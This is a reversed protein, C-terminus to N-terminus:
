SKKPGAQWEALDAKKGRITREGVKLRRGHTVAAAVAQGDRDLRVMSLLADSEINPNAAEAPISNEGSNDAPAFTLCQSGTHRWIFLDRLGDAREVSIALGAQQGESDTLPQSSVRCQSESGTAYPLAITAGHMPLPRKLRAIACTAPKVEMDIALFGQVPEERATVLDLEAQQWDGRFVLELNAHSLRNTRVIAAESDTRVHMPTFHWFAEVTRAKAKGAFANRDIVSDLVLWYDPRVFVLSRTHVMGELPGTEENGYVDDYSGQAFDMLKGASFLNRGRSSSCYRKYDGSHRRWQGRGDIDITNHSRSQHFFDVVPDHQYSSIGPDILFPTKYAYLDVHLKDEHQHAAGMEAIDFFAWRDDAEWGSRMVVHGADAYHITGVNRPPRGEAGATGAWLWDPRKYMRGVEVLKGSGRQLACGADNPVAYTGDPRTIGLVYDFMGDLRRIYEPSFSRGAHEARVRALHFLDACMMHYGPSLEFQAGDAFVQARLERELREMATDLWHTARSFEPYCAACTLIANSESVFWNCHGWYRLLHEAHAHMMKSIDILTRDRIEDSKQALHLIHPWAWGIRCSTSLTEWAPDLGGNHGVPEPNQDMWSAMLRDVERAYQRKGSDIAAEALVALWGHRNFAHNWELYGIPNCHWDIKRPLQQEMILHRCIEDPTHQRYHSNVKPKGSLPPLKKRRLYKAYAAIAAATNGSRVQRAVPKLGPRDLDLAALLEEDSMRPGGPQRVNCLEVDGLVVQGQDLRSHVNLEIAAVNKWGDGFGTPVLNVQPMVLKQWSKGWPAPQNFHLVSAYSDNETMGASRTSCLLRTVLSGEFQSDLRLNIVLTNYDSLDQEQLPITVVSKTTVALLPGDPQDVLAKPQSSKVTARRALEAGTFLTTAALVKDQKM